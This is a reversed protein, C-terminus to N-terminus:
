ACTTPAPRRTACCCSRSPWADRRQVMQAFGADRAVQVQWRTGAAGAGGALAAAPRRGAQQPEAPPPAAPPEIRTFSQADGFPGQDGSALISAVRWHHTGLPLAVRAETADLDSRDIRPQAFDPTDAVQLRVRAAAANRTWALRM